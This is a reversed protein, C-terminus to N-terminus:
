EDDNEMECRAGHQQTSVNSTIQNSKNSENKNLKKKKKKKKQRRIEKSENCIKNNDRVM